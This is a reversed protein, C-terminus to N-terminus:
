VFTSIFIVEHKARFLARLHAVFKRSKLPFKPHLLSTTRHM